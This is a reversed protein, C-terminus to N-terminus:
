VSCFQNCDTHNKILTLLVELQKFNYISAGHCVTLEEQLKELLTPNEKILHSVIFKMLNSRLNGSKIYSLKPLFSIDYSTADERCTGKKVRRISAKLAFNSIRVSSSSTTFIIPFKLRAM